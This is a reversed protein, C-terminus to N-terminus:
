LRNFQLLHPLTSFIINKKGILNRPVDDLNDMAPMYEDVVKQLSRIYAEETELLEEMLKRYHACWFLTCALMNLEAYTGLYLYVSFTSTM